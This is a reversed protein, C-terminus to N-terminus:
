EWPWFEQRTVQRWLVHATGTEGLMHDARHYRFCCFLETKSHRVFNVLFVFMVTSIVGNDYGLHKGGLNWTFQKM